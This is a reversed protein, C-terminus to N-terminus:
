FVFLAKGSALGFDSIAIFESTPAVQRDDDARESVQWRSVQSMQLHTEHQKQVQLFLLTEGRLVHAEAVPRQLEGFLLVGLTERFGSSARLNHTYMLTLRVFMSCCSHGDMPYVCSLDVHVHIYM